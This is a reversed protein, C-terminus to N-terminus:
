PVSCGELYDEIQQPTRNPNSGIAGDTLSPGRLGLQYRVVLLGDTAANKEGNADIDLLAYAGPDCLPVVNITTQM